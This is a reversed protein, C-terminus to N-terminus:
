NNVLKPNTTVVYIPQQDAFISVQSDAPLETAEGDFQAWLPHTTVFNYSENALMMEGITTKPHNAILLGFAPMIERLTKQRITVRQLGRETLPTQLKLYKAMIHSNAFINEYFYETKGDRIIENLPSALLARVAIIPESFTRGVKSQGFLSDRHKPNNLYKYSSALATAGLSAYFAAPYKEATKGESTVRCIIPFIEVIRGDELVRDPHRRHLSTHKAKHGDEANGGGLSLIPKRRLDDDQKLEVLTRVVTNFTGDGAVVIVLDSQELALRVLAKNAELGLRSTELQSVEFPASERFQHLRKLGRRSNTSYPNVLASAHRIHDLGSNEAM